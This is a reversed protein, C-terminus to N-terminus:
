KLFIMRKVDTYKETQIRVMYIGSSVDTANWNVNYSGATLQTNLLETVLKGTVDYIFLKVSSNDPLDFKIRTVPNFPNPYNDYLKFVKPIESENNGATTLVVRFNWTQSWASTVCSNSASVRWYYKVGLQLKGPPVQFQTVSLGGSDILTTVFSSDLYVSAYSYCVVSCYHAASCM